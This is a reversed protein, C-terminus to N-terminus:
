PEEGVILAPLAGTEAKRDIGISVRAVADTFTSAGITLLAILIAPVVVAWPSLVLGQRNENIMIGWNPAPPPQGFGLFSLGAIIVISYTLRLGIEVMLVSTLNPLVDRRIIRRGPIGLIQMAKVFDRESIDLAAARTVRAVQPAHSIAVALVILWIKPGLISVLLLAFVLQPFALIVDVARMIVSDWWGGYYAAAVGLLAGVVVGLATAVAAMALLEWGGNLTRSLVDRGLVDGGLWAVSSARAFPATVFQTSSYPAVAPGIVAVLIVLGAIVLGATGRPTRVARGLVAIAEPRRAM